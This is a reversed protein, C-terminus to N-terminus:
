SIIERVKGLLVDKDNPLEGDIVANLLIHLTEGILKGQVAGAAIIDRGNVALNKLNFCQQADIVAEAVELIDDIEKIRSDRNAPSHAMRDARKVALLNRFMKEGLRNMWRKVAKETAHIETDHYKVLTKVASITKNDFKMRHLIRSAMEESIKSHGYFHGIGDVESYCFPKGIDHMLMALRLTEEPIIAKIAEVTHGWVGLYHYPNNQEFDFMHRMEPIIYAVVERYKDMASVDGLLMKCLEDRIRENSVKDLMHLHRYISKETEPEIDFGLTASLRVARLVRLGDETFRRDPEGVCRILSREIDAMGDFPDIIGTEVCYAIANMTFDRRSLDDEISKSFAVDDPRRGDSYNGDSRYTTIEFQECDILLVVTGFKVGVELCPNDPFCAIVEEPTASTCIDWDHPTNGKLLDRVCGGVVFAEFGYHNLADLIMNVNQPLQLMKKM